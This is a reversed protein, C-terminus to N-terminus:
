KAEYEDTEENYDFLNKVCEPCYWKDNIQIWDDSYASETAQSEDPFISFGSCEGIHVEKCGDCQVGYCTESFVGM